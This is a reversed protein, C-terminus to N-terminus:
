QHQAIRTDLVPLDLCSEKRVWSGDWAGYSSTPNERHSADTKSNKVPTKNAADMRSAPHVTKRSQCRQLDLPASNILVVRGLIKDRIM